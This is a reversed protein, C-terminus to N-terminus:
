HNRRRSEVSERDCLALPIREARPSVGLLSGLLMVMFDASFPIRGGTYERVSWMTAGAGPLGGFPVTIM